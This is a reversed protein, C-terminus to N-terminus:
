AHELTEITLPRGSTDYWGGDQGALVTTRDIMTMGVWRPRHRVIAAFEFGRPPDTRVESADGIEVVTGVTTYGTSTTIRVKSGRM